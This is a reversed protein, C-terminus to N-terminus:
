MIVIKLSGLYTKGGIGLNLRDATELIFDLKIGLVRKIILSFVLRYSNRIGDTMQKMWVIVETGNRSIILNERPHFIDDAQPDCLIM